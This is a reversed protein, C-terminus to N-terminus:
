KYRDLLKTIDAVTKGLEAQAKEREIELAERLRKMLRSQWGMREIIEAAAAISRRRVSLLWMALAMAAALVAATGTDVDDCECINPMCRKRLEDIIQQKTYGSELAYCAVRGVDSARFRRPASRNPIYKCIVPM